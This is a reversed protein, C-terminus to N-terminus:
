FNRPEFKVRLEKQATNLVDGWDNFRQSRFLKAKPYYLCKVSSKGWRYDSDLPLLVWTEKDLASSLHATINDITIVLDCLDILTALGDIDDFNDIEKYNIIELNNKLKIDNIESEVDGYQLNLLSIPYDGFIGVFKNLPISSLDSRLKASTRWSIGVIFRNKISIKKKLLQGRDKDAILNPFNLNQFDNNSKFFLQPLSGLPIVQDYKKIEEIDPLSTSFKIGPMSRTFTRILRSDFRVEVECSKDFLLGIFRTFFIHDGIGQEGLVLIKKFNSNINFSSPNFNYKKLPNIENELRANTLVWATIDGQRILNLALNMVTNQNLPDIEKAKKYLSLASDFDGFIEKLKALNNLAISSTPSLHLAKNYLNEAEDYRKLRVLCDAKRIILNVNSYNIGISKNIYNLAETYNGIIECIDIIRQYNDFLKEKGGEIKKLFFLTKEYNKKLQYIQAMIEYSDYSKPNLKVANECYFLAEDLRDLESLAAACQYYYKYNFPDKSIVKKLFEIADEKKGQAFYTTALYYLAQPHNPYEDLIIKTLNEAQDFNSLNIAQAIEELM